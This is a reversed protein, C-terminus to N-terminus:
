YRWYMALEILRKQHRATEHKTATAIAIAKRHRFDEEAGDLILKNMGPLIVCALFSPLFDKAVEFDKAILLTAMRSEAIPSRCLPLARRGCSLWTAM